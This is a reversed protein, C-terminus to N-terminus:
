PAAESDIRHPETVKMMPQQRREIMTFLKRATDDDARVFWRFPDTRFSRWAKLDDGAIVGAAALEDLDLSLMIRLANHFEAMTM